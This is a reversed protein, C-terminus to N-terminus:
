FTLLLVFIVNTKHHTPISITSSIKDVLYHILTKGSLHLLLISVNVPFCDGRFIGFTKNRFKIETPVNQLRSSRKYNKNKNRCNCRNQSFAANMQIQSLQFLYDKLTAINDHLQSSPYIYNYKKKLLQKSYKGSNLM